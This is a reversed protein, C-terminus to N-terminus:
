FEIYLCGMILLNLRSQCCTPASYRAFSGIEVWHSCLIQMESSTEILDSMVKISRKSHPFEAWTLSKKICKKTTCFTFHFWCRFSILIGSLSRRECPVAVNDSYKFAAYMGSHGPPGPLSLVTLVLSAHVRQALSHSPSEALRHSPYFPRSPSMALARSTHIARRSPSFSISLSEALVLLRTSEKTCSKRTRRAEERIRLVKIDGCQTLLQCNFHVVQSLKNTEKGQLEASSIGVASTSLYVLRPHLM